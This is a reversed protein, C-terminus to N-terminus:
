RKKNARKAASVIDEARRAAGSGRPLRVLARQAHIDADKLRNALAYREASALSAMGHQGTQSYASGLDRLVRADRFDLDRAQELYNLAEKPRKVALLARGLGGLILANRPALDNAKRYATVANQFQRNELYIQGKLEYYFADNPRIALSQNIHSIAKALNQQRHYAVALRMHRVDDAPSESARQMTWKTPRLFATTKGRARDYWYDLDPQPRSKGSYAAVFGEMARVRDRTLPHSRTYPDQRSVNLLEQGEFIKHVQVAGIPDIGAAAMYRVASQDASAEESRTHALFRRQAASQTGLALGAAVDGRGTAAAAALALALGLGSATRASDLNAMRRTIHGNAIHASEHAIVSQLMEPKSMRMLMGTHIFIHSHDVVFANLSDDGVLLIRVTDGLGAANLVPSAMKRLAHEIDPDRLLSVAHATSTTVMLVLATLLAIARAKFATISPATMERHFSM